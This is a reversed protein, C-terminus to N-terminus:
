NSSMQVAWVHNNMLWWFEKGDIWFKIGGLPDIIVEDGQKAGREEITTNAYILKVREKKYKTENVTEPIILVSSKVQATEQKIPEVLVNKGFGRWETNADKRYLVIMNPTVRFHMKSRDVYSTYDQKVGQFIQKHLITPEIMVEYGDKIESELFLPVSVVKAVRNSLRDVSFDKNAYFEAGSETKFTDNLPKKLEIIFDHLGKM